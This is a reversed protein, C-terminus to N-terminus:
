KKLLKKKALEKYESDTKVTTVRYMNMAGVHDDYYNSLDSELVKKLAYYKVSDSVKLSDVFKSMNSIEFKSLSDVKKINKEAKIALLDENKLEKITSNLEEQTFANDNNKDCSFM